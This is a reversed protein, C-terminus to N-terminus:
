DRELYATSARFKAPSITLGQDKLRARVPQGQWQPRHVERIFARMWGPVKNQDRQIHTEGEDDSDSKEKLRDKSVGSRYVRLTWNYWSIVTLPLAPRLRSSGGIRVVRAVRLRRCASIRSKTEDSTRVFSEATCFCM